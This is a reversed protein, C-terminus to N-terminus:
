FTGSVTLVTANQDLWYTMVSSANFLDGSGPQLVLKVPGDASGGSGIIQTVSLISPFVVSAATGSDWLSGAPLTVQTTTVSPTNVSTPYLTLTSSDATAGSWQSAVAGAPPVFSRGRQSEGDFFAAVLAGVSLAAAANAGTSLVTSTTVNYNTTNVTYTLAM